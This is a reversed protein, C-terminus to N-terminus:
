ANAASLRTPCVPRGDTAPSAPPARCSQSPTPFSLPAVRNLMTRIGAIKILTESTQVKYCAPSSPGTGAVAPCPEYVKEAGAERLLRRQVATSQDEGRSVRAYGLLM